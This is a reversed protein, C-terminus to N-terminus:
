IRSESQFFCCNIADNMILTSVTSSTINIIDLFIIPSQALLVKTLSSIVWASKIGHAMTIDFESPIFLRQKKTQTQLHKIMLYPFPAHKTEEEYHRQHLQVYLPDCHSKLPRIRHFIELFEQEVMVVLWWFSLGQDKLHWALWKETKTKEIIPLITKLEEYEVGVSQSFLHLYRLFSQSHKEEEVFFQEALQRFEPGLPYLNLFKELALPRLRILAEEMEVISAAIILGMM